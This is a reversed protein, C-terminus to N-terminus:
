QTISDTKSRFYRSFRLQGGYDLHKGDTTIYETTDCPMFSYGDGSFTERMIERTRRYLKTDQLRPNVPMEFFTIEAGGDIFRDTLSKIRLATEAVNEPLSDTAIFFDTSRTLFDHDIDIAGQQPNIGSLSVAADAILCIPAYQEKLSPVLRKLEINKIRFITDKALKLIYNTEIFLHKPYIREKNLMKLATEASYGSLTLFQMRPVSDAIIRASLSTGVTLNDDSDTLANEAKIINDQRQNTARGMDPRLSVLLAHAALM